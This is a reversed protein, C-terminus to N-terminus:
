GEGTDLPKRLEGKRGSMGLDGKSKRLCRRWHKMSDVRSEDNLITFINKTIRREDGSGRWGARLRIIIEKIQLQPGFGDLIREIM